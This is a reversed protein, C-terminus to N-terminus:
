STDERGTLKKLANEVGSSFVMLYDLYKLIAEPLREVGWFIEIFDICASGLFIAMNILFLHSSSDRCPLLFVTMFMPVAFYSLQTLVALASLVPTRAYVLWKLRAILTLLYWTIFSVVLFPGTMIAEFGLWEYYGYQMYGLWGLAILSLLGLVRRESLLYRFWGEFLDALSDIM